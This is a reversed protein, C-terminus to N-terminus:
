GDVKAELGVSETECSRNAPSPIAPSAVGAGGAGAGVLTGEGGADSDDFRLEANLREAGDVLDDLTVVAGLDGRRVESLLAVMNSGHDEALSLMPHPVGSAAGAGEVGFGGFTSM